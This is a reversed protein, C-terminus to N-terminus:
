KNTEQKKPTGFGSSQIKSTILLTNVSWNEGWGLKCPIQRGWLPVLGKYLRCHNSLDTLFVEIACFTTYMYLIVNIQMGEMAKLNLLNPFGMQCVELLVLSHKFGSRWQRSHAFLLILLSRPPHLVQLISWPRTSQQMRLDLLTLTTSRLSNMSDLSAPVRLVTVLCPQCGVGSSAESVRTRICYELVLHYAKTSQLTLRFGFIDVNISDRAYWIVCGGRSQQFILM